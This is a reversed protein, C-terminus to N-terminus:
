QYGSGAVKFNLKIRWAQQDPMRQSSCRDQLSRSPNRGALCHCGNCSWCFRDVQGTQELIVGAPNFKGLFGFDGNPPPGELNSSLEEIIEPLRAQLLSQLLEVPRQEDQM